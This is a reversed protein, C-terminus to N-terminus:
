SSSPPLDQAAGREPGERDLNHCRQLAGGLAQAAHWRPALRLNGSSDGARCVAATVDPIVLARCPHWGFTKRVAADPQTDETPVIWAAWRVLVVLPRYPLATSPRPNTTFLITVGGLARTRLGAATAGISSCSSCSLMAYGVLSAACSFVCLSVVSRTMVTPSPGNCGGFMSRLV